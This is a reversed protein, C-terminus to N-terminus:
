ADFCRATAFKLWTELAVIGAVVTRPKPVAAIWARSKPAPCVAPLGIVLMARDRLTGRDLAELM